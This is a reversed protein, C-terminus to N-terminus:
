IKLLGSKIQEIVTQKMARHIRDLVVGVLRKRALEQHAIFYNRRGPEEAINAATRAELESLGQHLAMLTADLPDDAPIVRAKHSLMWAREEESFRQDEIIARFDEERPAFPFPQPCIRRSSIDEVILELDKKACAPCLRIGAGGLGPARRREESDSSVYFEVCCHPFGYLKALLRDAFENSAFM